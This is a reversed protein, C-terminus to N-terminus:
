DKWQAVVGSVTINKNNATRVRWKVNSGSPQASIDIESAEFMRIGSFSNSLSLVAATWTTGNDRSFEGILDVNITFADAGQIQLALRGSSPQATSPYAVSVLTMNDPTGVTNLTLEGIGIAIGGSQVASVNVRYYQYSAPSLILFTQAQGDIWNTVDARSDLPTWSSADNSGELVWSRPSQNVSGSRGLLTYSGIIKPSAGFNVQLWGSTVNNNTIWSTANNRDGAYWVQFGAGTNTNSATMTVGATTAATMAPIQNSGGTTTPLYWDNAADYVANTKNLVGTEDDFADAVGGVMGLRQGKLDAIEIAFIADNAGGSPSTALVDIADQVNAPNDKLGAVTNNFTTELATIVAQKLKKGSPGDFAPRGGDTAGNPGEMDGPVGVPLGFTITVAGDGNPTVNMTVDSGPPLTQVPAFTIDTYPGTEGTAGTIYAPDTWDGTDNTRKTYLASRGDGIDAVLVAFGAEEADYAARGALDDVLVDYDVGNILSTRTVTSMTGVGTFIPILDSGGALAAFAEINGNALSMLLRRTAEQAGVIRPTLQIEYPAATQSDGPWEHALTLETDSVVADIRIAIGVHTGFLDGARLPSLKPDDSMWSTGQGAVTVSGNSVTATGVGYSTPFTYDAM